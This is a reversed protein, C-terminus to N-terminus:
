RSVSCRTPRITSAPRARSTRSRATAATATSRPARGRTRSRRATRSRGATSRASCTRRFPGSCTGGSSCISSATATTTSGCPVPRSDLTASGPPPPSTLSGRRDKTGSCGAPAWGPSISIRIATTTSIPLASV